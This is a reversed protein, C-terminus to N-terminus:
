AKLRIVEDGKLSAVEDADASRAHAPRHADPEGHVVELHVVPDPTTLEDLLPGPAAHAPAHGLFMEVTEPELASVPTSAEGSLLQRLAGIRRELEQMSEVAVSAETGGAAGNPESYVVGYKASSQLSLACRKAYGYRCM